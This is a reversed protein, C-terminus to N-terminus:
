YLGIAAVGSLNALLGTMNMKITLTTTASQNDCAGSHGLFSSEVVADYAETLGTAACAFTGANDYGCCAMIAVGGATVSLSANTNNAATVSTFTVTPDTTLGSVAYTGIGCATTTGSTTVAVTATSGSAIAANTVWISCELENGNFSMDALKTCSTGGVTVTSVDRAGSSSVNISVAVVIYRDTSATGINHSTFSYSTTDTTSAAAATFTVSAVGGSSGGAGFGILQTALFSM